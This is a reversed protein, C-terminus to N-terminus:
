RGANKYVRFRLRFGTYLNRSLQKAPDEREGHTPFGLQLGKGGIVFGGRINFLLNM